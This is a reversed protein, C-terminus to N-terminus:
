DKRERALAAAPLTLPQWHTPETWTKAGDKSFVWRTSDLRHSHEGRWIDWLIIAWWYDGVKVGRAVDHRVISDEDHVGYALFAHGDKPASEIDRWGTPTEEQARAVAVVESSEDRRAAEADERTTRASAQHLATPQEPGDSIRLPHLQRQETQTRSARGDTGSRSGEDSVDVDADANDKPARAVALLDADPQLTECEASYRLFQEVKERKEDMMRGSPPHIQGGAASPPAIMELTAALDSYEYRCRELNTLSQGPQIEHLGFRKAKSLRIALEACEEAAITLLHELRNM